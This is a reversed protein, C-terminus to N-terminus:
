SHWKLIVFPGEETGKGNFILSAHSNVHCYNSLASSEKSLFSICLNQSWASTSYFTLESSDVHLHTSGDYLTFLHGHTAHSLIQTVILLLLVLLHSQKWRWCQTKIKQCCMFVELPWMIKRCSIKPSKINATMTIYWM